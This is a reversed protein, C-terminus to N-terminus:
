LPCIVSSVTMRLCTPFIFGLSVFKTFPFAKQPDRVRSARKSWGSFFCHSKSLLVYARGTSTGIALAFAIYYLQPADSAGFASLLRTRPTALTKRNPKASSKASQNTRRKGGHMAM